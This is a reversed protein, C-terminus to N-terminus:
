DAGAGADRVDLRAADAASMMFVRTRRPERAPPQLEKAAAGGARGRAAEAASLERPSKPFSGLSPQRCVQPRQPVDQKAGLQEVLQKPDSVSSPPEPALLASEVGAGAFSPRRTSKREGSRFSSRRPLQQPTPEPTPHAAEAAPPAAELAPASAQAAASAPAHEAVPGGKANGTKSAAKNAGKAPPQKIKKPGLAAAKGPTKTENRTPDLDKKAAAKKRKPRAPKSKSGATAAEGAQKADPPSPALEEDPATTGAAAQGEGREAHRGTSSLATSLQVQGAHGQKLTEEDRAEAEELKGLFDGNVHKNEDLPTTKRPM